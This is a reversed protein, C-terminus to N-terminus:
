PPALARDHFLLMELSGPGRLFPQDHPGIALRFTHAIARKKLSASFAEVPARFADATSTLLHLPKTGHTAFAKAIRDTWKDADGTSIAAQVCGLSDIADMRRAGVGLSAYGGLSVGDIGLKNNVPTEARLRPLLVDFLWPTYADLVMDPTPAAKWINPTYPCAIVMGRFPKTLEARLEAVRADTVMKGLGEVTISEPARAHAYGNGIGYRKVWAYAGLEEDVTEALGHLAILLPVREGKRLHTPVLVVARRALKAEGPLAWDHLSLAGDAITEKATTKPYPADDVIETAADVVAPPPVTPATPDTVGVPPESSQRRCGLAVGLSALMWSRRDLGKERQMERGLEGTRVGTTVKSRM